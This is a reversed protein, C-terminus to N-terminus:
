HSDLPRSQWEKLKAIVRVAIASITDVAAGIGYIEEIHESIDNYSMDLAYISLTKSEIEDRIYTQHKKVLQPEFSASREHPTLIGDKDSLSPTSQLASLVDKSSFINDMMIYLNNKIILLMFTLM